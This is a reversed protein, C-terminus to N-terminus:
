TRAPLVALPTYVPHAGGLDSRWLVMDRVTCGPWPSASRFVRADVAALLADRADAAARPSPPSPSEGGSRAAGNREGGWRGHRQHDNGPRDNERRDPRHAERLRALTLHPAFPRADPAFGLPVLAANVAGALAACERAGRALGLWLVRPAGRAPFVGARGVALPVPAFAIAKLADAVEDRRSAPVDGLFRLTLHWNGPPTWRLRRLLDALAPDRADGPSHGSAHGSVGLEDRLAALRDQWEPPLPLGVFCRLM